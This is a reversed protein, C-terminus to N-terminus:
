WSCQHLDFDRLFSDFSSQPHIVHFAYAQGSSDCSRTGNEIWARSPFMLNVPLGCFAYRGDADIPSFAHYGDYFAEFYTFGSSQPVDSARASGTVIPGRGALVSDVIWEESETKPYLDIEVYASGAYNGVYAMCPNWTGSDRATVLIRAGTPMSDVHFEGRSNTDGADIWSSYGSYPGTQVQFTLDVEAGQAPTRGSSSTWYVTGNVGAPWPGAAPVSPSVPTVSSHSDGSCASLFVVICTLLLLTRM